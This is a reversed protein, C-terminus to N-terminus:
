VRTIRFVLMKNNKGIHCPTDKFVTRVGTRGVKCEYVPFYASLQRLPSPPSLSSLIKLTLQQRRRIVGRESRLPSLLPPSFIFDAHSCIDNPTLLSAASFNSIKVSWSIFLGRFKATLNHSWQMFKNHIVQAM